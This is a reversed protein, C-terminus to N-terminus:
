AIAIERVNQSSLFGKRSDEMGEGRRHHKLYSIGVWLINWNGRVRMGCEISFNFM